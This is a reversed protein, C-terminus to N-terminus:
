LNTRWMTVEMTDLNQPICIMTMLSPDKQIQNTLKAQWLPALPVPHLPTKWM